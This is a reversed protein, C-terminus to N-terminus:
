LFAESFRLNTRTCVDTYFCLSYVAVHLACLLPTLTGVYLSFVRCQEAEVGVGRKLARLDVVKKPSKPSHNQPKYSCRALPMNVATFELCTRPLRSVTKSIIKMVPFFCWVELLTRM